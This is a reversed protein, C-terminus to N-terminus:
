AKGRDSDCQPAKNSYPKYLSKASIVCQHYACHYPPQSIVQLFRFILQCQNIRLCQVDPKCCARYDTQYISTTSPETINTCQGIHSSCKEYTETRPNVYQSKPMAQRSVSIQLYHHHSEWAAYTQVTATVLTEMANDM